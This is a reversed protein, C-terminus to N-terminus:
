RKGLMGKITRMLHGVRERYFVFLVGCYTASGITTLLFLAGLARLKISIIARVGFLVIAMVISANVSPLLIRLYEKATTGTKQFTRYYVPTIIIPYALLWAAAIGTTGWRSGILFAFPMAIASGVMTWMVFASDGIATLLNPLFTTLSRTAVFLGLLRLPAVVGIWKPGLLAPVAYDAVIALGISAPVTVFSLIETLRLLYRRLENKDTQVASFYAPTVGTVLNAIKELPASSINWAVTYNGLPVEGLVKGAVGFDANEYAYWAVRSLIIQRSFTLERKMDDFRPLAFKHRKWYLTLLSTSVSAVLYGIVLSWYRFKLLAFIVIALIQLVTRTTEIGAILKFRLEKQLLARPVVQTSNFAYILSSVLLVMTLPPASFFLAIPKALACSLGLAGMGILIALTNFEAIQQRTLDRFTIIADGIGAQSVYLALNLYLSAMGIIGYDYPTLLRAVIITSVWSLIQSIWRAAANWAVARALSRDLNPPKAETSM